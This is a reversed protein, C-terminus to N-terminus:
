LRLKQWTVDLFQYKQEDLNAKLKEHLHNYIKATLAESQADDEASRYALRLEKLQPDLQDLQTLSLKQYYDFFERITRHQIQVVDEVLGDLFDLIQKRVFDENEKTVNGKLIRAVELVRTYLEDTERNRANLDNLAAYSKECFSKFFEERLKGSEIAPSREEFSSVHLSKKRESKVQELAAIMKQKQLDLASEVLVDDGIAKLVANYRKEKQQLIELKAFVLFALILVIPLTIQLLVELPSYGDEEMDEQLNNQDGRATEWNAATVLFQDWKKM